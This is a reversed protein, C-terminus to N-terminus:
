EGILQVADIENWGKVAPSDFVIRVRQTTFTTAAFKVGFWAIHPESSRAPDVGSWVIHAQGSKDYLEIQKIAGPNFTQRVRVGTAHVARTYTLELWEEQNDASASAWARGDDAYGPVNPAGTVQQAGYNDSGYESSAKAKEAWQGLSDKLIEAEPLDKIAVVSGEIAQTSITGGNTSSAAGTQTPPAKTQPAIDWILVEPPPMAWSPPTTNSATEKAMAATLDEDMAMLASPPQGANDLDVLMMARNVCARAGLLEGGKACIVARLILLRINKSQSILVPDIIAAAKDPANQLLAETAATLTKQILANPEKSEAILHLALTDSAVMGNWGQGNAVALTAQVTYDGPKLPATPSSAFHWEAIADNDADLTANSKEPKHTVTARLPPGGATPTLTVAVADTWSGTKPALTTAATSDEPAQIRIAVFLPEGVQISNETVSRLSLYIEPDGAAFAVRAASLVGLLLAFISKMKPAKM